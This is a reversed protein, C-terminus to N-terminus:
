SSFKFELHKLEKLLEDTAFEVQPSKNNYAVDISQAYSTQLYVGLFLPVTIKLIFFKM